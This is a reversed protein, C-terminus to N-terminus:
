IESIFVNLILFLNDFNNNHNRVRRIDRSTIYFIMLKPIYLMIKNEIRGPIYLLAM